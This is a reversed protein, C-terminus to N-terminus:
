GAENKMESNCVHRRFATCILGGSQMDGLLLVAEEEDDDKASIVRAADQSVAPTSAAKQEGGSSDGDRRHLSRGVGIARAAPEATLGRAQDVDAGM